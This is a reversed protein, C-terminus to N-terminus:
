GEDLAQVLTSLVEAQRSLAPDKREKALSRLSRAQWTLLGAMGGMRTLDDGVFAHELRRVWALASAYALVDGHRQNAIREVADSYTMRLKRRSRYRRGTADAYTATVTLLWDEGAVWEPVGLRVVESRAEGVSLAGLEVGSQELDHWVRGGSAELLRVPAPAASFSLAVDSLVSAGPPGIADRLAARRRPGDGAVADDGFVELAQPAVGAHAAVAMVPIKRRRLRSLERAV